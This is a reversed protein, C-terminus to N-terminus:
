LRAFMAPEELLMNKWGHRAAENGTLWDQMVTFMLMRRYHVFLDLQELWANDLHHQQEYGRLFEGLFRKAAATDTAPREMGGTTFLLTQLAISIDVAFWHYNAVDFDIVHLAGGDFLINYSHPDNHIFGFSGREVPLASLRKELESWKEKIDEDRCWDRFGKVENRWGLLPLGDRGMHPSHEWHEYRAALAHMRGIAGGWMRIFEPTWAEYPPNVGEVRRMLYSIYGYQGDHSHLYLPSGETRLPGVIPAGGKLLYEAFAIREEYRRRTWDFDEEPEKWAMIKVVMRQGDREFSYVVGDSDERGGGLYAVEQLSLAYPELLRALTENDLRIM